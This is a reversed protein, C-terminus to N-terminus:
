WAVGLALGIEIPQLRPADDVPEGDVPAGSPEPDIPALNYGVEAEISLRGIGRAEMELGLTLAPLVGFRASADYVVVRPEIGLAVSPSVAGGGGRLGSRLRGGATWYRADPDGGAPLRGGIAGGLFWRGVETRVGGYATVMPALEGEAIPLMAGVQVGWRVADEMGADSPPPPPTPDQDLAWLAAVLARVKAELEDPAVAHAGVQEARGDLRRLTLAVDIRDDVRMARCAVWGPAGLAATAAAPTGTTSLAAAARDPGAIRLGAPLAAFADAVVQGLAAAAEADFNAVAPPFVVLDVPARAPVAPPDSAFAGLPAALAAALVLAALPRM